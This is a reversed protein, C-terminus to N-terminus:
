SRAITYISVESVLKNGLSNLVLWQQTEYIFFIVSTASEKHM